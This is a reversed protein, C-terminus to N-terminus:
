ALSVTAKRCCIESSVQDSLSKCTTAWLRISAVLPVSRQCAQVTSRLCKSRRQISGEIPQNRGPTSQPWAAVANGGRGNMGRCSRTPVCTATALLFRPLQPTRYLSNSVTLMEAMLIAIVLFTSKGVATESYRIEGLTEAIVQRRRSESM